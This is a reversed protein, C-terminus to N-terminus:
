DAQLNGNGLRRILALKIFLDDYLQQPEAEPELALSGAGAPGATDSYALKGRDGREGAAEGLNDREPNCPATSRARHEGGPTGWWQRFRAKVEYVHLKQEYLLGIIGLKMSM